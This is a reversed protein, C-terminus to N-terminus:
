SVKTFNLLTPFSMGKRKRDEEAQKKKMEELKKQYEEKMRKDRELEQQKRREREAEQREADAEAQSRKERLLRHFPFLANFLKLNLKFSKLLAQERYPCETGHVRVRDSLM